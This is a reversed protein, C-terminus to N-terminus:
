TANCLPVATHSFVCCRSTYEFVDNGDIRATECDNHHLRLSLTVFKKLSIRPFSISLFHGTSATGDYGGGSAATTAPSRRGPAPAADTADAGHAAAAATAAADWAAARGLM